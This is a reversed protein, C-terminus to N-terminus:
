CIGGAKTMCITAIRRREVYEAQTVNGNFAISEIRYVYKETATGAPQEGEKFPDTPTTCIVTVRFGTDALFETEPPAAPCGLAGDYALRYFMWEVGARAAQSARVGLLTQNVTSQQTATLRLLSVVVGAVVILLVVAAIYAFGRQRSRKM